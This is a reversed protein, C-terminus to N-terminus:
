PAASGSSQSGPCSSFVVTQWAGPVAPNPVVVVNKCFDVGRRVQVTQQKQSIALYVALCGVAPISLLALAIRGANNSTKM